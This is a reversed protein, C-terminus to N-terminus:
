GPGAPALKRMLDPRLDRFIFMGTVLLALAVFGSQGMQFAYASLVFIFGASLLHIFVLPQDRRKRQEEDLKSAVDQRYQRFLDPAACVVIALLSWWLSPTLLGDADLHSVALMLVWGFLGTLVLSGTLNIAFLTGWSSIENALGFGRIEDRLSVSVGLTGIGMITFAINFVNLLLFQAASGGFILLLGLPVLHRAVISATQGGGPRPEIESAIASALGVSGPSQKRHKKKKGM